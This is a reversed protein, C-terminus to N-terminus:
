ILTENLFPLTSPACNFSSDLISFHSASMNPSKPPCRKSAPVLARSKSIMSSRLSFSGSDRVHLFGYCFSMHLRHFFVPLHMVRCFQKGTQLIAAYTSDNIFFCFPFASIITEYKNFYPWFNIV